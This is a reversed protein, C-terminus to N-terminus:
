TPILTIKGLMFGYGSGVLYKLNPKFMECYMFHEFYCLIVKKLEKRFSGRLSQIKSKVMKQNTEPDFRKWVKVLELYGQNKMNRNTYLEKNKVQWLAPHARYCDIFQQLVGRPVVRLDFKENKKDVTSQSQTENEESLLDM